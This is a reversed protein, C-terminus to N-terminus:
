NTFAVKNVKIASNETWIVDTPLKTLFEVSGKPLHFFVTTAAGVSPSINIKIHDNKDNYLRVCTASSISSAAGATTPTEVESEIIKTLAM